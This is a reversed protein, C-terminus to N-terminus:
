NNYRQHRAATLQKRVVRPSLLPALNKSLPSGRFVAHPMMQPSVGVAPSYAMPPLNENNSELFGRKPTAMGLEVGRVRQAFSLSNVTESSNKKVPAIQVMMVVKSDGGLSDQLLYTLRSNRYPVHESKNRLAQIVDGLASLSRNINQAEKLREGASASKTLRESGALDILNLKGTCTFSRDDCTCRYCPHLALRALAVIAGNMSTAPRRESANVEELSHVNVTCLGPVHLGSGDPMMKIELKCSSNKALLDRLKENYIEVMSLSVTYSWSDAMREDIEDFLQELARQNMGPDEATGEMTFTKGSGTQGYAFICVNYGDLCSVVLPAVEAFVETHTSSQNFVKDLGFVSERGRHLVTILGDDDADTTVVVTGDSDGAYDEKIVPRVRCFVRINGRIEVLENHYKKRLVMEKKYKRVLDGNYSSLNSIAQMIRHSTDQITETVVAPLMSCEERLQRQEVRMAALRSRLLTLGDQVGAPAMQLHCSSTERQQEQLREQMAQIAEGRMAEVHRLAQIQLLAGSLQKQLHHREALLQAVMEDLQRKEQLEALTQNCGEELKGRETKLSEREEDWAMKEEEFRAVSAETEERLSVCEQKAREREADSDASRARSVAAEEELSRIRAKYDERRQKWQQKKERYQEANLKREEQLASLKSRLSECERGLAAAEKRGGDARERLSVKESEIAGVKEEFRRTEEQWTRKWGEYLTSVEDLADRERQLTAVQRALDRERNDRAASEAHAREELADRERQLEALEGALAGQRADCTAQEDDRASAERELEGVRRQLNGRETILLPLRSCSAHVTRLDARLRGERAVRDAEEQRWRLREESLMAELEERRAHAKEAEREAHAVAEERQKAKVKGRALQRTLEAKERTTRAADAERSAAEAVLRKREAAHDRIKARADALARKREEAVDVCRQFATAVGAAEEAAAAERAATEERTQESHARLVACESEAVEAAGERVRADDLDTQLKRIQMLFRAISEKPKPTAPRGAKKKKGDNAAALLETLESVTTELNEILIQKEGLQLGLTRQTVELKTDANCDLAVLASAQLTRCREQRAKIDDILQKDQESAM